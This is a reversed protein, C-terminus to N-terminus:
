KSRIIRMKKNTPAALIAQPEPARVSPRKPFNPGGKPKIFSAPGKMNKDNPIPM